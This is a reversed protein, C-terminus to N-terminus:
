LAVRVKGQRWEAILGRFEEILLSLREASIVMAEYLKNDMVLRGVNGEGSSIQKAVINLNDLFQDARDLSDMTARSVEDVRVDVRDLTQGAKGVFERTDAVAQRADTAVHELESVVNKGKESIEHFNAVATRIESKVTPDGLVENFHKLSSDLRAMASSLNGQDVLAADVDAPSRQQLMLHMDALVPTLAEAADGVQRSTTKFNTVVDAPFITDIAKRIEGRISAGAALAGADAPGPIIEIPPRGQGLMPETTQASSGKPILYRTDIALLVDVGIKESVLLEPRAAGPRSPEPAAPQRLDISDVRGVSIGKVTVLTGPRIGVVEDFHVHLAYTSGRVLWTPGRGFLVILVCLACLGVLVFLGVMLNRRSEEM